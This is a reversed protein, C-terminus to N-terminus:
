HAQLFALVTQNFRELDEWHHVHGCGPFTVLESQPLREHIAQSLALPTFIDAEGVTILAPVKIGALRDLADHSACAQCQAQFAALPMPNSDAEAQGQLLEELHAEYYPAAYIWLQLLKAFACPSAIARIGALMEFVTRGYRDLRPWTSILVLSRVRGPHDLALEQAIAGGMSIGAVHASAIGLADLLGAADAAMQSTTYPGPPRDSEGAGRNDMLVCRFHQQWCAAHDEWLTRDAGLGMILLLPEGQGREEYGITIGNALVTPM